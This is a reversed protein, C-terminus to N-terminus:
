PGGRGLLRRAGEYGRCGCARSMRHMAEVHSDFAGALASALDDVLALVERVEAVPLRVDEARPAAGRMRRVAEPTVDLDLSVRNDRTTPDGTRAWDPAPAGQLVVVGGRREALGSM